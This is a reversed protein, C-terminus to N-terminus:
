TEEKAHCATRGGGADFAPFRRSGGEGATGRDFACDAVRHASLTLTPRRGSAM